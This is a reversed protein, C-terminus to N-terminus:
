GAAVLRQRRDAVVPAMIGDRMTRADWESLLRADITVREAPGLGAKKRAKAVACDVLQDCRGLSGYGILNAVDVLYEVADPTLKVRPSEYIRRIEDSTFIRRRADHGSGRSGNASGGAVDTLNIALGVRRRMQGHDEDDSQVREWLDKTCVLLIPCHTEDHVDRLFELGDDRLRHAEDIVILRGSDHLKEFIADDPSIPRRRKPGRTLKLLGFLRDRLKAYTCCGKGLRLYIAGVHKEAIVQATMTKGFGTPGYAIVIWGRQQAIKAADIMANAVGTYVFPRGPRTRRRRADEEMWNNLSRLLGDIKADSVKKNGYSGAILGSWLGPSGDGIGRAIDANKLGHEKRYADAADRVKQRQDDTLPGSSPILAAAVLVREEHESLLESAPPHDPPKESNM